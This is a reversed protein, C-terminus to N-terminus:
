WETNPRKVDDIVGDRDLKLLAYRFAIPCHQIEVERKWEEPIKHAHGPFATSYQVLCRVKSAIYTELIMKVSSKGQWPRRKGLCLRCGLLKRADFRSAYVDEVILKMCRTQVNQYYPQHVLSTQTRSSSLKRTRSTSQDFTLNAVINPVHTIDELNIAIEPLHRFRLFHFLPININPFPPM